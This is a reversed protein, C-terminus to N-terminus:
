LGSSQGHSTTKWILVNNFCSTAQYFVDLVGGSTEDIELRVVPTSTSETLDVGLVVNSDNLSIMSYEGNKDQTALMVSKNKRIIKAHMQISVALSKMFDALVIGDNYESVILFAVETDVIFRLRMGGSKGLIYCVGYELPIPQNSRSNFHNVSQVNKVKEALAALDSISSIQSRISDDSQANPIDWAKIFIEDINACRAAFSIKVGDILSNTLSLVLTFYNDGLLAQPNAADISNLFPTLTVNNNEFIVRVADGQKIEALGIKGAPVRHIISGVRLYIIHIKTGIGLSLIINFVEGSLAKGQVCLLEELRVHTQIEQWGISRSHILPNKIEPEISSNQDGSKKFLSSKKFIILVIFYLIACAGIILITYVM